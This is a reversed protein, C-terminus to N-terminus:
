FYHLSDIINQYTPLGFSVKTQNNVLDYHRQIQHLILNSLRNKDLKSTDTIPDSMYQFTATSNFQAFKTPHDTPINIITRVVIDAGLDTEYLSFNYTIGVGDQLLVGNIVIVESDNTNILRDNGIKM